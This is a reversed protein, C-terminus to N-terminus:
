NVQAIIRRLALIEGGLEGVLDLFKFLSMEVPGRPPFGSSLRYHGVMLDKKLIRGDKFVHDM